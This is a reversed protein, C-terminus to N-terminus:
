HANLFAAVSAMCAEREEVHPMHSSQEFIQWQVEEIGDAFPQVTAPTAEDFRGSILLTPVQIRSLRDIITWNRMSGVVHFETPGNMAHYVTPDADIAAFTRAVEAPMPQIRCVHRAYFVDSAARYEPTDTTGADEHRQLTAQVDAPLAQRLENAAECWLEMSAPSNAIILAKLGVPQRVAHEAGLIGGWSQGLLAYDRLGLHAILNDLEALFLDVCWFDKPAQPLHTSRGNGLQDYHVVARGTAALDKFSDVYDHTCGPGGHAVILPLRGSNLDGTVRFWTRYDGFDAYGERVLM